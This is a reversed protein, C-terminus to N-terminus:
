AENTQGEKAEKLLKQIKANLRDLKMKLKKVEHLAASHKWTWGLEKYQAQEWTNILTDKIEETLCPGWGSRRWETYPGIHWVHVPKKSYKVEEFGGYTIPPKSTNRVVALIEEREEALKLQKALEREAKARTRAASKMSNASKRDAWGAAVACACGVIFREGQSDKVHYHVEHTRGCRHCENQEGTGSVPVLKDPSKPDEEWDRTDIVDVIKFLLANM